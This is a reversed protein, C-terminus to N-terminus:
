MGLALDELAEVDKFVVVKTTPLEIWGQNRMHTLSRSVTEITTGLYDAIDQRKM